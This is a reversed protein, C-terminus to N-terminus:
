TKMETEKVISSYCDIYIKDIINNRKLFLITLKQLLRYLKRYTLM